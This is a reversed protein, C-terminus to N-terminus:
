LKSNELLHVSVKGEKNLKEDNWGGAHIMRAVMVDDLGRNNTEPLAFILVCCLLTLAAMVVFSIFMAAAERPLMYPAGIGGFRAAVYCFSVALSRVSTPFLEVVFPLILDWSLGLFMSITLTLGTVVNGSSDEDLVFSLIVITVSASFAVALLIISGWRRGLKNGLLPVLPFAPMMIATLLIFNLYFDGFLSGIGFGIAYYMVSLLFFILCCLVTKKILSRRFLQVVTARKDVTGGECCSFDTVHDDPIPKGNYRCIKLAVGRAERARGHVALWRLSEPTWWVPLLALGCMVATAMHIHKWDKLVYVCVSFSLVGVNWNPFGGIFARWKGTTFEFPYLQCSSLLGGVSIGIFFRIAAYMKWDLAFVAIINTLALILDWLYMNKKRGYREGIQGAIFSGAMVGFMQISIILSGLWARDCVLSWETVITSSDPDFRMNSCSEAQSCKDTDLTTSNAPTTYSTMTSLVSTVTSLSSTVTSLPTATVPPFSM